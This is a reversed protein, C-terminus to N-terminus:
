HLVTPVTFWLAIFCMKLTQAVTRIIDIAYQVRNVLFLHDSLRVVPVPSCAPETLAQADTPVIASGGVDVDAHGHCYGHRLAYSPM